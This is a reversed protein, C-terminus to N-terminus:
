DQQLPATPASIDLVTGDPDKLLMRRQGYPMDTPASIIDAGINQALQYIQDCDKVVFTVIAGGAGATGVVAAHRRLHAGALVGTAGVPDVVAVFLGDIAATGVAHRAADVAGGAVFVGVADALHADAIHAM